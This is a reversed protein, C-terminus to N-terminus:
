PRKGFFMERSAIFTSLQTGNLYVKYEEGEILKDSIFSVLEFSLEPTHEYILKGDKSKIEIKTNAKTKEPFEIRATCLKSERPLQMMGNSSSTLVTGGSIIMEGDSDLSGNDYGEPGDIIM